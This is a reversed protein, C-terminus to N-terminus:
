KKTIVVDGSFATATVVASGDGVTGRASKRTMTSRQLELPPDLRVQGSFTSAQLEFGVSGTITVHVNGSHTQLEYRGNKTLPGTYDVSGSLSKLEANDCAVDKAHVEGSIVSGSLRQCKIQDLTMTGSVTSVNMSGKVSANTIQV